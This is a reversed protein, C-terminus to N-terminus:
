LATEQPFNGLIDYDLIRIQTVPTSTPLIIQKNERWSNNNWEKWINGIYLKMKAMPVLSKPNNTMDSQQTTWQGRNRGLRFIRFWILIIKTVSFEFISNSLGNWVHLWWSENSSSRSRTDGTWVSWFIFENGATIDAWAWVRWCCDWGTAFQLVTRSLSWFPNM